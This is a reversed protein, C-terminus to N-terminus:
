QATADHLLLLAPQLIRCSVGADFIQLLGSDLTNVCHHCVLWGAFLTFHALACNVTLRECM